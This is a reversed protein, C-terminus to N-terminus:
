LEKEFIVTIQVKGHEKRMDRQIIPFENTIFKQFKDTKTLEEDTFTKMTKSVDAEYDDQTIINDILVTKEVEDLAGILGESMSYCSTSSESQIHTIDSPYDINAKTLAKHNGVTLEKGDEFILTWSDFVFGLKIPDIKASDIWFYSNGFNTKDHPDFVDNLLAFPSAQIILRRMAQFDKYNSTEKKIIYLKNM